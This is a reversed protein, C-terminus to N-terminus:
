APLYIFILDWCRKQYDSSQTDIVSIAVMPTVGHPKPIRYSDMPYDPDPYFSPGSFPVESDSYDISITVSPAKVKSRLRVKLDWLSLHKLIEEIVEEDEIFALIRM